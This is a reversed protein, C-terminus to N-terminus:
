RYHQKGAFSAFLVVSLFDEVRGFALFCQKRLVHNSAVKGSPDLTGRGKPAHCALGYLQLM